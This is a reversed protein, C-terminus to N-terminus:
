KGLALGTTAPTLEIASKSALTGDARVVELEAKTAAAVNALPLRVKTSNLTWEVIEVPLTTGGVNLRVTGKDNGFTQGDLTVLSGAAIAPLPESVTTTPQTPAFKATGTTSSFQVPTTDGDAAPSRSQSLQGTASISPLVLRQGPVLAANSPLRNFQAIKLSNASTGYEKLSVTYFSDGPLVIYTSHFPEYAQGGYVGGNQNYVGGTNCSQNTRNNNYGGNGGGYLGGYGGGFNGGYGGGGGKGGKGCALVNSAAFAVAGITLATMLKTTFTRM